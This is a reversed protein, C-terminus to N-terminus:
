KLVVLKRAAAQGASHTVFYIGPSVFSGNKDRLDWTSGSEPVDIDAVVRGQVDIVFVRGAAGAQPSFKVTQGIYVPNTFAAAEPEEGSRPVGSGLVEM